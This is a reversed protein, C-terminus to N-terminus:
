GDRDKMYFDGNFYFCVHLEFLYKLDCLNNISSRGRLGWASMTGKKWFRKLLSGPASGEVNTLCLLGASM